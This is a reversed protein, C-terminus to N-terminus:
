SIVWLVGAVAYCSVSVGDCCWVNKKLIHFDLNQRKNCKAATVNKFIKVLRVYICLHSKSPIYRRQESEVSSAPDAM